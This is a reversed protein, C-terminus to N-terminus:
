VLERVEALGECMWVDAHEEGNEAVVRTGRAQQLRMTILARFEPLALIRWHVRTM